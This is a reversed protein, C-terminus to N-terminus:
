SVEVDLCELVPFATRVVEGNSPESWSWEDWEIVNWEQWEQICDHTTAASADFDDFMILFGLMDMFVRPFPM